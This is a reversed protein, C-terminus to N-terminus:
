SDAQDERRLNSPVKYQKWDTDSLYGTRVLPYAQLLIIHRLQEFSWDADIRHFPFQHIPIFRYSYREDRWFAM